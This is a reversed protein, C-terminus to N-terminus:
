PNLGGPIGSDATSNQAGHTLEAVSGLSVLRPPSYTRRKAAAAQMPTGCGCGEAKAGEM